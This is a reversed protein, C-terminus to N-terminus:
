EKSPLLHELYNTLDNLYSVLLSAKSYDDKFGTLTQVLELRELENAHYWKDWFIDKINM